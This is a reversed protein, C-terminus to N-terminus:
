LRTFASPAYYVLLRAEHKTSPLNSVKLGLSRWSCIEDPISSYGLLQISLQPPNYSSINSWVRVILAPHIRCSVVLSQLRCTCELAAMVNSASEFSLQVKLDMLRPLASVIANLEVQTIQYGHLSVSTVSPSQKLLPLFKSTACEFISVATLAFKSAHPMLKLYSKLHPDDRPGHYNLAIAGRWLSPDSAVDRLRRCSNRVSLKDDRTLFSFIMLLVEDPLSLMTDYIRRSHSLAIILPNYAQLVSIVVINYIYRSCTQGSVM